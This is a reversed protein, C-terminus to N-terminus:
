ISSQLLDDDVIACTVKEGMTLLGLEAIDIFIHITIPIRLKHRISKLLSIYKQPGM